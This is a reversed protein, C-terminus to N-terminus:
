DMRRLEQPGGLRIRENQSAHNNIMLARYRTIIYSLDRIFSRVKDKHGANVVDDLFATAESSLLGGSEIVFPVVRATTPIQAYHALKRMVGERAAAGRHVPHNPNRAGRVGTPEVVHIDFWLERRGDVPMIPSVWRIDAIVNTPTGDGGIVQGM